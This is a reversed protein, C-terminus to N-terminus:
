EVRMERIMGHMLHSRGDTADHAFCLLVYHGPLFDVTLYNVQGPSLLTTGTTLDFPMDGARTRMYAQADALTKGDHLRIMEVHHPQAATNDVRLTHRGRTLAPSFDFAYDSLTLRIDVEPPSTAAGDKSPVVTFAKAMGKAVHPIGDGASIVCIVAYSGPLLEVVAESEGLQLATEPGGVYTAWPLSRDQAALREMLDKLTHNGDLRVLQVHHADQGHNTLRVRTIGAAVTDPMNFAFNVTSIALERPGAPTTAPNANAQQSCAAASTLLALSLYYRNNFSLM